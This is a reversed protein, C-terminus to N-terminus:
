SAGGEDVLGAALRRAGEHGLESVCSPRNHRADQGAPKGIRQGDALEDLLDDCIQYAMGLAVGFEGLTSLPGDEAGVALAGALLTLRMLATTKLNRSYLADPGRDSDRLGLDVAQGGIMGNGGVCETAEAILRAAADRRGSDRAARVLLGYSGNLLALAALAALGEGYVRHLAPVGRRFDADDMAPLDDFIISSTHLFEMACAAPLADLAAGGALEAGLLTLLPRWRKGGPFVAYRLAENLRGAHPQSSLPLFDDLAVEISPRRREVYALLSESM